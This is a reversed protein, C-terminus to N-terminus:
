SQESGAVEENEDEAGAQDLDKLIQEEVDALYDDISWAVRYGGTELELGCILDQEKKFTIKIKDETVAVLDGLVVRLSQLEKEPFDFASKITARYEAASLAKSLKKLDASPLEQLKVVFRSRIIQELSGDALDKLCRRAIACAQQGIRRRLEATFSEKDREFAEEWRKRAEEVDKRARSLMEAKEEEAALRAKEMASEEDKRLEESRRRFSEAEAEAEKRSSIAREEREVIKKERDDMTRVVPGYLFYRLLFVLILFNVIQFIVTYWDIIM